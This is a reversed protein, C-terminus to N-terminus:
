TKPYLKEVLKRAEECESAKNNVYEFLEPALAILKANHESPVSCKNWKWQPNDEKRVKNLCGGCPSIDMVHGTIADEGGACLTAMSHDHVHWEWPGPSHRDQPHLERHRVIWQPDQQFDEAM